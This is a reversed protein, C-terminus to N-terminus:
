GGQYPANYADRMIEAVRRREEEGGRLLSILILEYFPKSMLVDDQLPYLGLKQQGEVPPTSDPPGGLRLRGLLDRAQQREAKPQFPRIRSDSNDEVPTEM